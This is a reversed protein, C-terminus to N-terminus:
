GLAPEPGIITRWNRWRTGGALRNGMIDIMALDIMTESTEVLREYDRACRRHASVWANTREVVWRWPLVAFGKVDDSRKVVEIDIQLVSAGWDVISSDVTNAYGGDVWAKSLGPHRAKAAVLTGRGAVRDSVTASTVRRACLLGLTDVVLNRKRGRCHKFKDFGIAEGGEASVVSQADLSCATPHEARGEVARVRQYLADHVASWTGDRALTRFWRYAVWWAVLDHPLQRWQCGTRLLYFITNLIERWPYQMPRGTKVKPRALLVPEIVAFAEESLDCNYCQRRDDGGCYDCKKVCRRSPPSSGRTVCACRTAEVGLGFRSRIM